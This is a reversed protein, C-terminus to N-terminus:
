LIQFLLDTVQSVSQLYRGAAQYLHQYEVLKLMEEDTNVGSIEERRAELASLLLAQSTSASENSRVDFGVGATLDGYSQAITRGDLDALQAGALALLERFGSGDNAGGRRSGAILRPDAAVPAAVDLDAAGRGTFFAGLELAALVDTEDADGVLDFEFLDGASEQISGATLTLTVGPLVEIPDGPAHGAGVDFVGLSAGSEDLLEISLGPTLGIVGDGRARVVYRGEHGAEPAGALRAAVAADFGADSAGPAFLASTSAAVVQLSSGAGSADSSLVLRGDRARALVGPAQAEIAAAVEEATAQAVNVFDAAAFTVTVPAGGNVSLTLTDGDSLAFPGAGSTLTARSAGFSGADDPDVDLRSSFDFGFGPEAAVRLRGAPDVAASLHPLADLAAALDALSDKLPDVDLFHQEVAGSTRDVLNVVLRGAGVPFPLDLTALADGARAAGVGVGSTLQSYPGLASVSTTHVRNVELILARAVRDLEAQRQPVTLRALDLLGQLRGSGIGVEAKTGSVKVTFSGDAEERASLAHMRDGSVVLLGDVLVDVTGDPRDVADFRVWESLEGLLRDREDLLDGPVGGLNSSKLARENMAALDAFLGNVADVASQASQRAQSGVSSWSAALERFSAGLAQAAQLLGARAASDDPFSTLDSFANWLEDLRASVGSEGPERLAAEIQRLLGGSADLRGLSHRQERLRTELLGDHVRLLDTVAVGTGQGFRALWQPETTAFQSLRRAYGPTSANAVNHGTVDLSLQAARLARLGITFGLM